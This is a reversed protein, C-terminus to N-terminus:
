QTTGNIEGVRAFNNKTDSQSPNPTTSHFSFRLLLCTKSLMCDKLRESMKLIKNKQSTPPIIEDTKPVPILIKVKQRM